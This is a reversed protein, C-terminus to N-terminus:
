IEKLSEFVKEIEDLCELFCAFVEPDFHGEMNNKMVHVAKNFSYAEKYTRRSTLADFVDALAVIRGALPIEEGERGRPYGTGDYKEHHSGIIDVATDMLSLSLYESIDDSIQRIVREGILVHDQMREWEEVNLKDPKMLVHDPIGIKGIDHLPAFWRIERVLRASVERNREIYKCALITSYRTMRQIHFATENDREHLLKVFALSTHAVIYQLIYEMYLKHKLLEVVRSVFSSDKVTFEGEKRLVIVYGVKHGEFRIPIIISSRYGDQIVARASQSVDHKEAFAVLDNIILSKRDGLLNALLTGDVSTSFLKEMQIDHFNSYTTETSLEGKRDLFALGIRDCAMEKKLIQRLKILVHDLDGHIDIERIQREFLIEHCIESSFKELDSFSSEDIEVVRGISRLCEIAKKSLSMDTYVRGTSFIRFYVSLALILVIFLLADNHLLSSQERAMNRKIQISLDALCKQNGSCPCDSLSSLELPHIGKKMQPDLSSVHLALRSYLNSIYSENVQNDTSIVDRDEYLIKDIILLTENVHISTKKYSYDRCVVFFLIMLILVISLYLVSKKLKPKAVTYEMM